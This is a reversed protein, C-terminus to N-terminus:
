DSATPHQRGTGAAVLLWAIALSGLAASSTVLRESFGIAIWLWDDPGLRPQHGITRLLSALGFITSGLGAALAALSLAKTLALRRATPRVAYIGSALLPALCLILAIRAPWGM